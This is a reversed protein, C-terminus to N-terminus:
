RSFNFLIFQCFIFLSDWVDELGFIDFYIQRNKIKISPKTSVINLIFVSSIKVKLKACIILGLHLM